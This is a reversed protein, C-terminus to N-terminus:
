VAGAQNGSESNETRSQRIRVEGVRWEDSM